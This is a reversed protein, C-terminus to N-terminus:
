GPPAVAAPRAADGAPRTAAPEATPSGPRTSWQWAAVMALLVGAATLAGWVWAPVAAV